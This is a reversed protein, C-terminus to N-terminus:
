IILHIYYNIKKVLIKYKRAYSLIEIDYLQWTDSCNKLEKAWNGVYQYDSSSSYRCHKNNMTLWSLPVIEIEETEPTKRPLFLIVVYPKDDNDDSENASM